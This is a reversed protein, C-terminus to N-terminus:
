SDDNARSTPAGGSALLHVAEVRPLRLKGSLWCAEIEALLTEEARKKNDIWEGGDARVAIGAPLLLYRKFAAVLLGAAAFRVERMEHTRSCLCM